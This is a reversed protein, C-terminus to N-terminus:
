LRGAAQALTAFRSTTAQTLLQYRLQTDALRTMEFDIDVDNGDNRYTAMGNGEPGSFLLSGRPPGTSIHRPDTVALRPGGGGLKALLETEFAADRRQYEPTDVNAINGALAEQRRALGSLGHHMLDVRADRVLNIM